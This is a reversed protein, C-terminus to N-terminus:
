NTAMAGITTGNIVINTFPLPENDIANYVRGRIVGSQAIVQLFGTFTFISILIIKRM